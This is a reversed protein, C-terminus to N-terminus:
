LTKGRIGKDTSYEGVVGDGSPVKRIVRDGGECISKWKREGRKNVRRVGGCGGPRVIPYTIIGDYFYIAVEKCVCFGDYVLGRRIGEM